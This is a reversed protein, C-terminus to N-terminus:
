YISKLKDLRLKIKLYLIKLYDYKNGKLNNDRYINLLFYLVSAETRILYNLGSVQYM